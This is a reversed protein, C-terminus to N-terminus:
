SEFGALVAASLFALALIGFMVGGVLAVADMVPALAEPLTTDSM